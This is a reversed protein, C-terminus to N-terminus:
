FENAKDDVMFEDELKKLMWEKFNTHLEDKFQNRWHNHDSLFRISTFLTNGLYTKAVNLCQLKHM